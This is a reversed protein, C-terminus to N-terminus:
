AGASRETASRRWTMTHLAIAAANSVNLSAIAGTTAIRCVLDCNDRTLRRLGRDEAGLVLACAGGTNADELRDAAEGELGIRCFGAGGIEALARALNAVRILAVHELAGSAAKALAGSTPPSWRRAMVVAPVSFAAASRLIAGVNHPDTVQDLVLLPGPLAGTTSLIEPLSPEPLPEAEVAVGQHVTDAGLLRSLEKPSSMELPLRRVALAEALRKGANDTTLVRHVRRKPNRLVAAAAHLGYIFETADAAAPGSPRSFRQRRRAMAATQTCRGRAALPMLDAAAGRRAPTATGHGNLRGKGADTKDAKGLIPTSLHHLLEWLRSLVGRGTVAPRNQKTAKM